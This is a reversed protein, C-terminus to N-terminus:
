ELEYPWDIIGGFDKVNTYGLDVLTQAAIASRRGSRCYVLILQDKNTLTNFIDNNITQYPILLANPIHSEDYEEQERVDLIIYDNKTNILEYAQKSTITEYTIEMKKMEVDEVQENQIITTPTITINTLQNTNKKNSCGSLLIIMTTALITFKKM